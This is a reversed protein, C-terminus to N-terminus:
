NLERCNNMFLNRDDMLFNRCEYMCSVCVYSPLILFSFWPSGIHFVTVAIPFLIYLMSRCLPPPLGIIPSIYHLDLFPSCFSVACVCVYYFYTFNYVSFLHTLVVVAISVPMLSHRLNFDIHM